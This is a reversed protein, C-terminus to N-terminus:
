LIILLPACMLEPVIALGHLIDSSSHINSRQPNKYKKKYREETQPHFVASFKHLNEQQQHLM